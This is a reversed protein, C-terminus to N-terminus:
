CGIADLLWLRGSNWLSSYFGNNSQILLEGSLRCFILEMKNTLSLIMELEGFRWCLASVGMRIKHKDEKRVGNLWTGIMNTINAPPPIKLNM